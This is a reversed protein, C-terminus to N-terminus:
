GPRLIHRVRETKGKGSAQHQAHCGNDTARRDLRENGGIRRRKERKLAIGEECSAKFLRATLGPSEGKEGPKGPLAVGRRPRVLLFIDGFLLVVRNSEKQRPHNRRNLTPIGRMEGERIM